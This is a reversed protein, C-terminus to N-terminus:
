RHACVLSPEARSQFTALLQLIELVGPGLDALTEIARLLEEAEGREEGHNKGGDSHGEGRSAIHTAVEVAVRDHTAEARYAQELGAINKVFAGTAADFHEFDEPMRPVQTWGKPVKAGSDFLQFGDSSITYFYKM